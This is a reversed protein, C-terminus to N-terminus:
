EKVTIMGDKFMTDVDIWIQDGEHMKDATLAHKQGDLVCVFAHYPTVHVYLGGELFIDYFV